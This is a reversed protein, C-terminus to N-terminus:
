GNGYVKEWDITAACADVDQCWEWSSMFPGNPGSGRKRANSMGTCLKCPEDPCPEPGVYEEDM